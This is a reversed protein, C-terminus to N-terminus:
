TTKKPPRGQGRKRKTFYTRVSRLNRGDFMLTSSGFIRPKRIYGMKLAYRLQDINADIGESNLQEVVQTATLNPM